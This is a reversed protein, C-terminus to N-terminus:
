YLGLLRGAMAVVAVALVPRILREGGVVALRAGLAGGIAYGVALVLAVSWDVLGEIVFVVVAVSTFAALVVVKVSNARVLDYGARSLAFILAFGVGAQIAGGYVGIAFFVASTTGRSWPRAGTGAHKGGSGRLTPVLLLLMAIAFAREFFADSVRSVALAGLASGVVVPVLVPVSERWGSVGDGHFRWAASLSQVLIGVRNTGNAITGPLGLLVLMPVTVLSGGGALTNVVGAAGSVVLLVAVGTASLEV